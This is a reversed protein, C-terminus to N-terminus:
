DACPTWPRSAGKRRVRLSPYQFSAIPGCRNKGVKQASEDAGIRDNAQSPVPESSSERVANYALRRKSQHTQGIIDRIWEIVDATKAYGAACAVGAPARHLWKNSQNGEIEKLKGFTSDVAGGRGGTGTPRWRFRRFQRIV